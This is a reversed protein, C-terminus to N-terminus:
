LTIQKKDGWPKPYAGRVDEPAQGAFTPLILFNYDIVKAPAQNKPLKDKTNFQIGQVECM